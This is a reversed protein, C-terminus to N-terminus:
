GDIGLTDLLFAWEFAMDRLFDYRGSPGGHGAGMDTKLLLLNDDTKLARLRAVWKAPEWYSVRPDNLGATVLLNPYAQPTVNEYPSYSRIYDYYAKDAPNGWEEYEGITLPLTPDLMTNTVDVFPVNAIASKFLDPRMNLVAGVLLGGASGGKITLRDPSTYGQRILEEACAIFDIFTNKKRLFKGEEYWARGMEEGGRIHAIAYVFGRDILSLLNSSFYPDMSAGYSGYGYLLMPNRGDLACGKLHVLSIPVRAGDPASAFLRRTEYRDPDFGGLVEVRKLLHMTRARMDFDYISAPTVLSTYYLRFTSVDFEENREPHVMYVSEPFEIYYDETGDVSLVRYRTTAERREAVVIYDHFEEMYELLTDDRHPLIEVWNEQEPATRPARVLRFNKAQDNTIIYLWDGVHDVSYEVGTRRPLVASFEGEPRSADLLRVERTRKSTSILGLYDGSRFRRIGLTFAEDEEHYVMPDASPDDGLRHRFAKFPRRADDLTTYFFTENDSAWVVAGSTGPIRDPLLEGRELDKVYITYIENGLTEFAYALYRGDPSVRLSALSFYSHGEALANEDLIVEEEADLSGKKRCNVGYQKGEITRRYYFYDGRRYPVSLDTQKIRGLMEGYLKEQLAATHVMAERTYLNEAELYATVEPNSRDKLWHYDDIFTEGHITRETPIM